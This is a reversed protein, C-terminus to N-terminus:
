TTSRGADTSGYFQGHFGYPLCHPLPVRTRETMTAADLRVLTSRDAPPDCVASPLVGDDEANPNPAPM